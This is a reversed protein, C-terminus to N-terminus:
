EASTWREVVTAQDGEMRLAIGGGTPLYLQHLGGLEGGTLTIVGAKIPDGHSVAVVQQGPHAAALARLAVAMRQALAILPEEVDTFSLPDELYAEWRQRHVTKVERWSLGEWRSAMASETLDPRVTLSLGLGASLIEATEVARELPSSYLAAIPRPKLRRACAEAQRRGQESLHWGPSRGYVLRRPNDVLGHRVLHILTPAAAPSAPM